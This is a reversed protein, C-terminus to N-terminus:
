KDLEPQSGDAGEGCRQSWGARGAARPLALTTASAISSYASSGSQNIAWIKYYYTTSGDLTSDGFYTVGPRVTGVALYTGGASASRFVQFGTENSSNDRWTLNIKKATAAAAYLNSPASPVAGGVVANQVFSSNPINVFQGNTQPTMWQLTLTGYTGGSSKFYTMAFSHAGAAYNQASGTVTKDGHVGDNDLTATATASYPVDIYLKSGDGSILRFTYSGAVPFYLWGQFLFGYNFNVTKPSLSYISLTGASVASLAYFNPLSTWTGMYYKWNVGILSPVGVWQNSFPSANGAIDRAKVAFSYTRGNILNSAQYTTVNGAVTGSLNGNVYIDYATVGVDDTSANWVLTITSQSLGSAHLNGPTTPPIIDAQTRSSSPGAAPSGATANIARVKYFYTTNPILNSVM